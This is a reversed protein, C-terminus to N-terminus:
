ESDGSPNGLKEQTMPIFLLNLAKKQYSPLAERDLREASIWRFHNNPVACPAPTQIRFFTTHISRFTVAHRTTKVKHVTNLSIGTLDVLPQFVPRWSAWSPTKKERGGQPPPNPHPSILGHSHETEQEHRWVWPFQWLGPYLGEENMNTLLWHGECEVLLVAELIKEHRSRRSKIPLEMTKGHLHAQCKSALPCDQCKPQTPLCITAGLEMLAQNHCAAHVSPVLEAALKWVAKRGETTGLDKNMAFFRALVREVNGDVLPVAQDFAISLIAGATYEGVGPLSLLKAKNAPVSGGHELLIARAACHLNRGRRYYGLGAWHRLVEEETAIALSELDPFREMFRKYFPIATQVQTQQLMLESVLIAYPDKTGRWPLDRKVSDFWALLYEWVSIPKQITKV